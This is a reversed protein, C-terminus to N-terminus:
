RAPGNVRGYTGLHRIKANRLRTAHSYENGLHDVFTTAGVLTQDEAVLDNELVYFAAHFDAHGQTPLVDGTRRHRVFLLLTTAQTVQKPRQLPWVIWRRSFLRTFRAKVIRVNFDARNTVFWQTMVQIAPKDGI